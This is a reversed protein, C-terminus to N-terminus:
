AHCTPVKSRTSNGAVTALWNLVLWSDAARGRALARSDLGLPEPRWAVSWCQVRDAAEVVLQWWVRGAGKGPRRRRSWDGGHEAGRRQM